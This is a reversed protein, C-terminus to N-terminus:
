INGADSRAYRRCPSWSPRRMRTPRTRFRSTASTPSRTSATGLQRCCRSSTCARPTSSSSSTRSSCSGWSSPASRARPSRSSSSPRTPTQMPARTSEFVIKPKPRRKDILIQTKYATSEAEVLIFRDSWTIRFRRLNEKRREEQM